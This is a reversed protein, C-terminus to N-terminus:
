KLVDEYNRTTIARCCLLSEVKRIDAEIDNANLHGKNIITATLGLIRPIGQRGIELRTLIENGVQHEAYLKMLQAMVHDGQAHHCEDLILLAMENWKTFSRTLADLIIQTTAVLIQVLICM